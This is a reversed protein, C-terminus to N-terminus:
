SRYKWNIDTLNPSIYYTHIKVWKHNTNPPAVYQTEKLKGLSTIFKHNHNPNFKFKWSHYFRKTVQRLGPFTFTSLWFPSARVRRPYYATIFIHTNNSIYTQLKVSVNILSFIRLFYLFSMFKSLFMTLEM